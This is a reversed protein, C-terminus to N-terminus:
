CVDSLNAAVQPDLPALTVRALEGQQAHMSAACAASVAADQWQGGLGEQAHLIIGAVGRRTTQLRYDVRYSRDPEGPARETLEYRYHQVGLPAADFGSTACGAALGAVALSRTLLNM